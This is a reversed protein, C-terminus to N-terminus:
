SRQGWREKKKGEEDGSATTSEGDAGPRRRGGGRRWQGQARGRIGQQLWLMLSVWQRCLMGQLPYNLAGSRERWTARRRSDGLYCGWSDLASSISEAVQVRSRLRMRLADMPPVLHEVGGSRGNGVQRRDLRKITPKMPTVKADLCSARTGLTAASARAVRLVSAVRHRTPSAVAPCRRRWTGARIWWSRVWQTWRKTM